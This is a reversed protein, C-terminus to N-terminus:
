NGYNNKKYTEFLYKHLSDRWYPCNLEHSPSLCTNIPRAVKFIDKSSKPILLSTDKKFFKCIEVAIDFKSIKEIPNSSFHLIRNNIKKNEIFTVMSRAVDYNWVPINFQDNIVDISKNQLIMDAIKDVFTKKPKGFIWGLRLLNYNLNCIDCGSIVIDEAIKKTLGYMNIPNPRDTNNIFTESNDFIDSTSIHIFKKCPTKSIYIGMIIGSVFETNVRYSLCPNEQCEEVSIRAICNIIIDPSYELFLNRVSLSDFIDFDLRTPCILEYGQKELVSKIQSGLLGTSGFLLIKM